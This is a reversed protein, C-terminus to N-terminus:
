LSAMMRKDSSTRTGQASKRLIRQGQKYPTGIASTPTLPYSLPIFIRDIRWGQAVENSATRFVDLVAIPQCFVAARDKNVGREMEIPLSTNIMSHIRFPKLGAPDDAHCIYHVADCPVPALPKFPRVTEHQFSTPSKWKDSPSTSQTKPVVSVAISNSGTKITKFIV